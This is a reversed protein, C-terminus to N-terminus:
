NIVCIAVVGQKGASKYTEQIQEKRERVFNLREKLIHL